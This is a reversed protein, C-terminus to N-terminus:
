QPPPPYLSAVQGTPDLLVIRDSDVRPTNQLAGLGVYVNQGNTPTASSSTHVILTRGPVVTMYQTTPITVRYNAVLLVWGSLDVPATSINMVSVSTNGANEPDFSADIIRVSSAAMSTAAAVAIQTAAPGSQVAAVATAHIPTPTPVNTPVVYTPPQSCGAAAAVVGVASVLAILRHM